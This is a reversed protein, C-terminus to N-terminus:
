LKREHSEREKSASPFVCMICNSCRTIVIRGLDLQVVWDNCGVMYARLKVCGGRECVELRLDSTKRHTPSLFLLPNSGTRPTRASSIVRTDMDVALQPSRTRTTSHARPQPRQKRCHHLKFTLLKRRRVPIDSVFRTWGEEVCTECM